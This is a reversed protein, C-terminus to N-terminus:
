KELVLGYLRTIEVELSFHARFTDAERKGNQACRGHAKEQVAM